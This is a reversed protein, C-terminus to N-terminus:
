ESREILHHFDSFGYVNSNPRGECVMEHVVVDRGMVTELMTMECDLYFFVPSRRTRDMAAEEHKTM